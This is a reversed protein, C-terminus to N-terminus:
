AYNLIHRGSRLVKKTYGLFSFAVYASFLRGTECRRHRKVGLASPDTQKNRVDRYCQLAAVGSVCVWLAEAQFQSSPM